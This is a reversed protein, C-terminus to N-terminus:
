DKYCDDYAPTEPLLEDVLKHLAPDYALMEDRKDIHNHVGNPPNAELNTNYWNQVGEAWYEQVQSEAYTNRYLGKEKAANFASTLRSQFTKDAVYLGYLSITHAYEHICIGEGYWRDARDCMVSEEACLGVLGGLGRARTNYYDPLDSYEPPDTTKESKAIMAFRAKSRLLADVVDKRERTMDVVIRCARQLAADPTKDSSTVPLGGASAYKTYFAGLGFRTRVEEPIPVVKCDSASGPRAGADPLPEGGPEENQDSCGSGSCVSAGGDAATAGSAADARGDRPAADRGSSPTGQGAAGSDRSGGERHDEGSPMSGDSAASPADDDAEPPAETPQERDDAGAGDAAVRPDHSSCGLAGASLAPLLNFGLIVKWLKKM